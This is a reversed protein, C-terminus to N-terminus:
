LSVAGGFAHIRRLLVTRTQPIYRPGGSGRQMLALTINLFSGLTPYKSAELIMWCGHYGGRLRLAIRLLSLYFGYVFLLTNVGIVM